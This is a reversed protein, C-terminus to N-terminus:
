IWNDLPTTKSYILVRDGKGVGRERLVAALVEVEEQLERYSIKRKSGTVPSDWIIATADGNGSLVHRTVLNFTTSIRGGPFWTWAPRSPPSCVLPTTYPTDWHLKRAHSDWFSTPDSISHAHAVDQPDPSAM